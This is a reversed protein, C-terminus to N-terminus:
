KGIEKELDSLDPLEDLNPMLTIEIRRNQAKGDEKDNSATPQYESYGAASLNKANVGKDQLFSVVSVARETSLEWNSKFKKSKIPVNDTHGAVQFERGKIGKLVDAVQALVATGEDSLVAVGSPFLIASPLELIMKGNKVKVKLKGAEIMSKFKELMGKLTELRSKAAAEKKKMEDIMKQKESLDQMKADLDKQISAYKEDLKAKDFGLKELEAQLVNNYDKLGELDTELALKAKELEAKDKNLGDITKDQDAIQNKYKGCCGAAGLAFLLAMAALTLRRATNAKTAKM